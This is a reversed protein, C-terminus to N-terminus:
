GQGFAERLQERSFRYLCRQQVQPERKVRDPFAKYVFRRWAGDTLKPSDICAYVLDLNNRSAEPLEAFVENLARQGTMEIFRRHLDIDSPIENPLAEVFAGM